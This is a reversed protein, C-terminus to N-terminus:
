VREAFDIEDLADKSALVTALKNRGLTYVWLQGGRQFNYRTLHKPERNRIKTDEVNVAGYHVRRIM